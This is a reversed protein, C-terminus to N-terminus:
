AKLVLYFQDLDGNRPVALTTELIDENVFSPKPSVTMEPVARLTLQRQEVQLIM